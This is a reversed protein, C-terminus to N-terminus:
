FMRNSIDRITYPDAKHDDVMYAQICNAPVLDNAGLCQILRFESGFYTNLESEAQQMEQDTALPSDPVFYDGASDDCAGSIYAACRPFSDWWGNVVQNGV